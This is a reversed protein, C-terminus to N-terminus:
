RRVWGVLRVDSPETCTPVSVTMCATVGLVSQGGGTLAILGFGDSSHMAFAVAANDPSWAHLPDLWVLRGIGTGPLRLTTSGAVVIDFDPAQAFSYTGAPRHLAAFSGDRGVLQLDTTAGTTLDVATIHRRGSEAPEAERLVLVVDGSMAAAPNDLSGPAGVSLGHRFRAIEQASGDVNIGSIVVAGRVASSDPTDRWAVVIRHASDVGLLTGGFRAVIRPRQPDTVDLITDYTSILVRGAPADDPGVFLASIVNAVSPGVSVRRADGGSVIALENQASVLYPGRPDAFVIAERSTAPWRGIVAVQGTSTDARYLVTTRVVQPVRVDSTLTFLLDYALGLGSSIRVQARGEFYGDVIPVTVPAVRSPPPTLAAAVREPEPAEVPCAVAFSIVIAVIAFLSLLARRSRRELADSLRVAWPKHAAPATSTEGEDIINV